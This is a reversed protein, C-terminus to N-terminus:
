EMAQTSVVKLNADILEFDPPNIGSTCRWRM